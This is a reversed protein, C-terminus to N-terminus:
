DEDDQINLSVGLADATPKLVEFITYFITLAEEKDEVNTLEELLHVVDNKIDETVLIPKNKEQLFKKFKM